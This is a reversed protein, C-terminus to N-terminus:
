LFVMEEHRMGGVGPLYVGPEITFVMGKRLIDASSASISPLEHVDIGVGHGLGHVFFADLRHRALIKVARRHLERARMGPAAMLRCERHVEMLAARMRAYRAPTKGAFFTRTLDSAYGAIAVGLDVIVPEEERIRRSGATHHPFAAHPGSAVITPFAEKAGPVRSILRQIEGALERETMGPSLLRRAQRLVRVAAAHARVLVRQEGADKVSRLERLFDPIGVCRCRKKWRSASDWSIDAGIFGVRGLSRMQRCFSGEEYRTISVPADARQAALAQNLYLGSLYLVAARRSVLLYGEVDRIGTLYFINSPTTLLCADVGFRRCGKRVARLRGRYDM